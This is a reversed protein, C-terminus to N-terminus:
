SCAAKLVLFPDVAPGGGPHWEFHDHTPGGAADGTNGVYGVIDGVKVPGSRGYAALHANYVYGFRGIVEVANGGLLNPTRVAVGDFPAVVPTGPAAFIDNGQHLHFGGAYRPAGFDDSFNGSGKVPCVQLPRKATAPVLPRNTASGSVVQYTVSGPAPGQNEGNPSLTPTPRVTPDPAGDGGPFRSASRMRFILHYARSQMDGAHGTCECPSTVLPWDARATSLWSM